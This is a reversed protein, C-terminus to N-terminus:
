LDINVLLLQNIDTTYAKSRKAKNPLEVHESCAM